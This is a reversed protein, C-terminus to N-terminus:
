PMQKVLRKRERLLRKRDEEAVSPIRVRSLVQTDGRDHALLARIMKKADIRDTKRQRAKRNVLLSAPDLVITEVGNAKLCRALWFGEFGAEYCSLVRVAAGSKGSDAEHHRDILAILAPTDSPKLVHLGVKGSGPAKVGVVWSKGRLEIAVYLTADELIVLTAIDDHSPM